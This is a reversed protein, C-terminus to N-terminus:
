IIENYLKNKIERNKRREKKREAVSPWIRRLTRGAVRREGSSSKWFPCIRVRGGRRTLEVSV